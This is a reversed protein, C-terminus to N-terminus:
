HYRSTFLSYALVYLGNALCGFLSLKKEYIPFKTKSDARFILM